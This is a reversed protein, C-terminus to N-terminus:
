QQWWKLSMHIELTPDWPTWKGKGKEWLAVHVSNASPYMSKAFFLNLWVYVNDERSVASLAPKPCCATEQSSGHTPDKKAWVKSEWGTRIIQRAQAMQNQPERNRFAYLLKQGPSQIERRRVVLAWQWGIEQFTITTYPKFHLNLIIQQKSMKYFGSVKWCGLQLNGEGCEERPYPRKALCGEKDRPGPM